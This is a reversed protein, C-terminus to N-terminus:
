SKIPLGIGEQKNINDQIMSSNLSSVESPIIEEQKGSLVKMFEDQSKEAMNGLMALSDRPTLYKTLKTFAENKERNEIQENIKDKPIDKMLGTSLEVKGKEPKRAQNDLALYEALLKKSDAVLRDIKTMSPTKKGREAEIADHLKQKMEAAATKIEEIRAGITSHNMIAKAEPDMDPHAAQKSRMYALMDGGHGATLLKSAKPDAMMDDLMANFGPDKCLTQVQKNFVAMQEPTLKVNLTEKRGKEALGLNRLVIVEAALTARTEKVIKAFNPDKMREPDKAVKETNTLRKKIADIREKVTPMYRLYMGKTPMGFTPQRLIYEKMLDDIGGGHGYKTFASQIADKNERYFKKFFDDEHLKKSVYRLEGSSITTSVLKDKHHRESGAILRAAM